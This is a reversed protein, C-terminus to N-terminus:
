NPEQSSPLSRSASALGPPQGEPSNGGSNSGAPSTPDVGAVAESWRRFMETSLELDLETLGDYGPEVPEGGHTVNWTVLQRGFRQLVQKVEKAKPPSGMAEALEQIELFAGTSMGRATFELGDWDGGEFVVQYLKPKPEFGGGM